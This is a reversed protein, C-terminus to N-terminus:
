KRQSFVRAMENLRQIELAKDPKNKRIATSNIRLVATHNLKRRTEDEGGENCPNSIRKMAQATISGDRGGQDARQDKTQASPM